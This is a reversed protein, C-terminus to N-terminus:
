VSLEAPFVTTGPVAASFFPTKTGPPWVSVFNDAANGSFKFPTRV